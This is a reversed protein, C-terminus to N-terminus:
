AHTGAAACAEQVKTAQNNMETATSNLSDGPIRLGMKVLLKTAGLSWTRMPDSIDGPLGPTNAADMAMGAAERLATRGTTNSSAVAPDNYDSGEFSDAFDGYYTASADLVQAFQGCAAVAAPDANESTIAGVQVQTVQAAPGPAATDSDVDDAHATVAGALGIGFAVISVVGARGTTAVLRSSKM